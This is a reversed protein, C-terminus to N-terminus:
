QHSSEDRYERGRIQQFPKSTVIEFITAGLSYGNKQQSQHIGRLMPEDSLQVSRGLAYGLLKRNFQKVFDDRRNAEIYALLDRANSLEHGDPLKTKADIPHGATDV